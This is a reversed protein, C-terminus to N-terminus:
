IRATRTNARNLSDLRDIWKQLEPTWETPAYAFEGHYKYELAKRVKRADELSVFSRSFQYAGPTHRFRVSYKGSAKYIGRMGQITDDRRSNQTNGAYTALRLNSLRDDSTCRNKHDIVLGEPVDEGYALAWVIAATYSHLEIAGSVMHVQLRKDKGQMTGARNGARRKNFTKHAAGNKFHHLPRTKWILYGNEPNYEFCERLFDLHPVLLQRVPAAKEIDSYQCVQLNSWARNLVDGDIHRVIERDKVDMGTAIAYIARATRIKRGAGLPIIPSKVLYAGRTNGTGKGTRALCILEGTEKDYSYRSQLSNIESSTITIHKM